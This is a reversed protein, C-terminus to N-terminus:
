IIVIGHIMAKHRKVSSSIKAEYDCGRVNCPYYVVDIGHIMAQHSKLYSTQKAIYRCGKVSCPYYVVGIDHVNAKHKKVSGALKAEYKCGNINCPYYKVDINHILAKHTKLHHSKKAVYDCGSKGCSFVREDLKNRVKAVENKAKKEGVLERGVIVIDDDPWDCVEEEGDEYKVAIKVIEGVGSRVINTVIGEYWDDDNFKKVKLIIGMELTGEVKTEDRKRKTSDKSVSSSSSSSFTSGEMKKADRKSIFQENMIKQYEAKLRAKEAAASKKQDEKDM